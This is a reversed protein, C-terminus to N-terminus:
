SLNAEALDTDRLDAEEFLVGELNAHRLSAGRLRAKRLRLAGRAADWWSPPEGTSPRLSERGLDIGDLLYRSGDTGSLDLADPQKGLLELVLATREAPTAAALREVLGAGAPTAPLPTPPATPEDPPM